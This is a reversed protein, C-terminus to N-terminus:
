LPRGFKCMYEPKSMNEMTYERSDLPFKPYCDFAFEYFPPQLAAAQVRASPLYRSPPAFGALHSNTSLFLAVIDERRLSDVATVLAYYYNSAQISTNSSQNEYAKTGIHCLAHSDDFYLVIIAWQDGSPINRIVTRLAAAAKIAEKAASDLLEFDDTNANPGGELYISLLM